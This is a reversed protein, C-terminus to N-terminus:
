CNFMHVQLNCWVGPDEAAQAARVSDCIRSPSSADWCIILDAQLCASSPSCQYVTSTSTISKRGAAHADTFFRCLLQDSAGALYVVHGPRSRGTRGERQRMRSPSSADWCIILDVQLLSLHDSHLNDFDLIHNAITRRSTTDTLRVTLSAPRDPLTGASSSTWRCCRRICQLHAPRV